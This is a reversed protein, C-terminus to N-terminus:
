NLSAIADELVGKSLIQPLIVPSVDNHGPAFLLYLPVGSRGHRTLEQAIMDNKNTWDAVLFATNTDTFLQQVEPQDLVLRKNVKCTVCWAATFDVFVAQGDARLENVKETSWAQTNVPLAALKPQPQLTFPLIIAGLIAAGAVIRSVTRVGKLLWIGFGILLMSALASLLGAEGAQQTLVWLLWIAAAFMPFSLFERFRQMWPGPKPLAALLRPMYSLLLFPMAFGFALAMFVAFTVVSSQALAYGMAGAMFPATCPTAVIVALAGTSFTGLWSQKQTLSGGTNQLGMGIEFTGLLNLGIVFLLIALGAVVMPSQLQFGWGIEAGGAKVLLLVVVLLLFTALVGATYIWGERRVVARDSHAKKAISLAKISIVPFVCPMLNLILGGVFASFIAAMLGLSAGSAGNVGSGASSGAAAAELVGVPVSTNLAMSVEEGVHREGIHFSLVGDATAPAGGDWDFGAKTRLQFGTEGKIITQPASHDIVGQEFPFFYADTINAGEPLSNFTFVTQTGELTVGSQIGGPKPSTELAGNISPAWLDDVEPEGVTIWLSLQADEPVCIDACVLYYVDADIQLIEGPIADQAVTFVVPFLPTDEFGYNIIPGTPIPEPLPWVIDGHSLTSPVAWTIQVPEGSDGPNRWYTHWGPDLETRLAVHFSQGPLASNHSSILQANVYGTDVRESEAAFAPTGAFVLSLFIIFARVATELKHGSM